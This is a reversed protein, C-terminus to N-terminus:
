FYLTYSYYKPNKETTEIKQLAGRKSDKEIEKTPHVTHFAFFFFFSATQYTSLAMLVLSWYDYKLAWFFLNDETMDM